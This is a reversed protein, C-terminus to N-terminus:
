EEHCLSRTRQDKGLTRSACKQPRTSSREEEKLAHGRTLRAMDLAQYWRLRINNAAEAQKALPGRRREVERLIDDIRLLNTRRSRTRLLRAGHQYQYEGAM